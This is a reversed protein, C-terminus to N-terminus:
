ELFGVFEDAAPPPSPLKIDSRKLLKMDLSISNPASSTSQIFHGAGAAEDIRQSVMRPIDLGVM